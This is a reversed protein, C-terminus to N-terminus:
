KGFYYNIADKKCSDVCFGWLICESNKMNGKKVMEEVDLSMTCNKARWKCSIYKDEYPRLNLSPLGVFNKITTGIIMFPAM